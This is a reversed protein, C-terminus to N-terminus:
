HKLEFFNWIAGLYIESGVQYISFIFFNSKRKLGSYSKEGLYEKFRKQSPNTLTLFLLLFGVTYYLKKMKRKKTINIRKHTKINSNQIATKKKGMIEHIYDYLGDTEENTFDTGKEKELESIVDVAKANLKLSKAYEIFKNAYDKLDHPISTTKDPM